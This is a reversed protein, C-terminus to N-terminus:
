LSSRTLRTITEQHDPYKELLEQRDGMEFDAFDFGPAVTCGALGFDHASDETLESAFWTNAPVTHQFVQGKELDRGLQITEVKGADHLVHIRITGGQYFHWTEDSHIRHFASFNGHTLLFYIATALNRDGEFREPLDAQRLIEDSRFSEKFYGGEPHAQLDLRDLYYAKDSM